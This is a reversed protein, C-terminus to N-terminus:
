YYQNCTLYSGPSVSHLSENVGGLKAEHQRPDTMNIGSFIFFVSTMNVGSNQKMNETITRHDTIIIAPWTTGLGPNASTM